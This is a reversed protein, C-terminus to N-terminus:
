WYRGSLNPYSIPALVVFFVGSPNNPRIDLIKLPPFGAPLDPAVLQYIHEPRAIDTFLFTITGSPSSVGRTTRM